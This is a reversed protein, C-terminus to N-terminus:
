IYLQDLKRVFKNNYDANILSLLEYSTADICNLNICPTRKDGFEYYGNELFDISVIFYCNIRYTKLQTMVKYYLIEHKYKCIKEKIEQPLKHMIYKYKCIKEKIKQPLKHM